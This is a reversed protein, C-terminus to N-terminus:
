RQRTIVTKLKHLERNEEDGYYATMEAVLDDLSLTGAGAVQVWFQSPNEIASVYVEM